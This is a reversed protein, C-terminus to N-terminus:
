AADAAPLEPMMAAGSVARIICGGGSLTLERVHQWAARRGDAHGVKSQSLRRGNGDSCKRRPCV